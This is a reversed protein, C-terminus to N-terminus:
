AAQLARLQDRAALLRRDYNRRARRSAATRCQASCRSPPRGPTRAVTFAAGCEVCNRAHVDSPM